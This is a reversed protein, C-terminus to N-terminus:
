YLGLLLKTRLADFHTWIAAVSEDVPFDVREPADAPHSFSGITIEINV